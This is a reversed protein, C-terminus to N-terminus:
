GEGKHTHRSALRWKKFARPRSARAICCGVQKSPPGSAGGGDEQARLPALGKELARPELVRGRWELQPLAARAGQNRRARRLCGCSVEKCSRAMERGLVRRALTGCLCHEGSAPLVGEEPCLPTGLGCSEMRAFISPLLLPRCVILHDTPMVWETSLLKLLSWSKIFVRDPLPQSEHPRLSDSMVSRSFQVSSCNCFFDM